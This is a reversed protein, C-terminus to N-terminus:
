QQVQLQLASEQTDRGIVGVLGLRIEMREAGSAAAAATMMIRPRLGASRPRIPARRRGAPRRGRCGGPSSGHHGGPRPCM